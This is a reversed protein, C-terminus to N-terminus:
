SNLTKKAFTRWIAKSDKLRLGGNPKDPTTTTEFNTKRAVVSRESNTKKSGVMQSWKLKGSTPKGKHAGRSINTTTTTTTTTTATDKKVCSGQVLKKTGNSSAGKRHTIVRQHDLDEVSASREIPRRRGRSYPRKGAKLRSDDDGGGQTTMLMISSQNPAKHEEEEDYYNKRRGGFAAIRHHEKRKKDILVVTSITAAAAPDKNSSPSKSYYDRQTTTVRVNVQQRGGGGCGRSAGGRSKASRMM